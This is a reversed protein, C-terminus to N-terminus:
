RGTRLDWVRITKDKSGSVLSRDDLWELCLIPESHGRFLAIQPKKARKDWLRVSKDLSGTAVICSDHMILGSGELGEMCTIADDHRGQLVRGPPRSGAGATNISSWVRVLGDSGGGWVSECGSNVYFSTLKVKNVNDQNTSPSSRPTTEVAGGRTVNSKDRNYGGGGSTFKRGVTIRASNNSHKGDGEDHGRLAGEVHAAQLTCVPQTSQMNWVNITGDFSSSLLVGPLQSPARLKSINDSHGALAEPACLLFPKDEDIGIDEVGEEAQTDGDLRCCDEDEVIAMQHVHESENEYFIAEEIEDEEDNTIRNANHGGFDYNYSNYLPAPEENSTSACRDLQTDPMVASTPPVMVSIEVNYGKQGEESSQKKKFVGIGGHGSKKKPQQRAVNNSLSPQQQSLSSGSVSWSSASASSPGAGRGVILSNEMEFRKQVSNESSNKANPLSASVGGRSNSNKGNDRKLVSKRGVGTQKKPSAIGQRPVLPKGDMGFDEKNMFEKYEKVPSILVEKKKDRRPALPVASPADSMSGNSDSNYNSNSVIHGHEDFFEEEIDEDELDDDGYYEEEAIIVVFIVSCM